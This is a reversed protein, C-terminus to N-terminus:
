TRIVEHPEDDGLPQYRARLYDFSGEDLYWSDGPDLNRTRVRDLGVDEDCQVWYLVANAGVAGALERARDRSERAWFGFDLVVDVGLAAVRPWVDDLLRQVRDAWEPNLHGRPGMDGYLRLYWEDLSFRVAGRAEVTRAFTTKGAGIFGHLLHAAAM